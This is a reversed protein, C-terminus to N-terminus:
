QAKLVERALQKVEDDTLIRWQGKKLCWARKHEALAKPTIEYVRRTDDIKFRINDNKYRILKM